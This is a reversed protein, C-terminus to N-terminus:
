ESVTSICADGQFHMESDNGDWHVAGYFDFACVLYCYTPTQLSKTRNAVAILVINGAVGLLLIAAHLCTAVVRYAMPYDPEEFPWVLTDNGDSSNADGNQM